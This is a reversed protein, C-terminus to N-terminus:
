HAFPRVHVVRMILGLGLALLIGIGLGVGVQPWEIETGSSPASVPVSAQPPVAREAADRYTGVTSSTAFEGLGYQKNLGQSRLMEAREWPRLVAAGREFSDRYKTVNTTPAFEGLGYQKNLAESRIRLATMWQPESALGREHADLYTVVSSARQTQNPAVEAQAHVSAFAAPAGISLAAAAVVTTFSLKRTM